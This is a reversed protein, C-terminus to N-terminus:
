RLQLVDYTEQEMVHSRYPFTQWFAGDVAYGGVLIETENPQDAPRIPYQTAHAAMAGLKASITYEDSATVLEGGGAQHLALHGVRYGRLALIDVANVVAEHSATHDQHGTIDHGGLSVVQTIGLVPIHDVLWDAIEACRYLLGGDPEDLYYQRSYDIGIHNLGAQSEHFRAGAAVFVVHSSALAICARAAM